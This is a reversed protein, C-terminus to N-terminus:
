PTNKESRYQTLRSLTTPLVEHPVGGSYDLMSLLTEKDIFKPTLGARVTNDSEAMCELCDGAIYAHPINPGLFLSQGPLLHVINLFYGAFIGGDGAFDKSLRIALLAADREASAIGALSSQLTLLAKEINVTNLWCAVITKLTEGSPNKIFSDLIMNNDILVRLSPSSFLQILEDYPRFRCLATFPSLALVMEPKHNADPYHQPASAHLLVALTKNPHAQISLAKEVSLVKFLFPLTGAKKEELYTSLLEGGGGAITSPGKSHTGFWLEAYPAEESATSDNLLHYIYSEKGKKGWAYNQCYGKIEM